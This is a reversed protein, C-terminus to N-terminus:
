ASEEREPLNEWEDITLGRHNERPPLDWEDSGEYELGARVIAARCEMHERWTCACCNDVFFQRWYTEGIRIHEGCYECRHEKRAKVLKFEASYDSSM